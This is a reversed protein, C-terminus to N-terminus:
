VRALMLRSNSLRLLDERERFYRENAEQPGLDHVHSFGLQQLNQQLVPPNFYTIWPEGREAVRQAAIARAQQQAESLQSSPVSYDFVIESGAPLSQIFTLTGMVAPVSLYIVVGLLSFFAPKGADFGARSLGGALTQTEFDVPAFTMSGPIAIGAEALRQRKWVQTAPHDVEFVRLVSPAHPNRYAFTDLGAGLVVYQQVGRAVAAALQDEAYRSRLAVSARLSPSGQYREPASLLYAWSATSIIRLALPDNLVRPTDLIQHAARLVAAGHATTSPRGDAMANRVSAGSELVTDAFAGTFPALGAYTAGSMVTRLFRRRSVNSSPSM